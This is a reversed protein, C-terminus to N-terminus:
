LTTNACAEFQLHLMLCSATKFALASFNNLGSSRALVHALEAKDEQGM